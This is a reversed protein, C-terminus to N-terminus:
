PMYGLVCIRAYRLAIEVRSATKEIFQKQLIPEQPIRGPIRKWYTGPVFISAFCAAKVYNKILSLREKEPWLGEQILSVLIYSIFIGTLLSELIAPALAYLLPPNQNLSFPDVSEASKENGM